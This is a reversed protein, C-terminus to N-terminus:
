VLTLLSSGFEADREAHEAVQAWVADDLLTLWMGAGDRAGWPAPLEVTRWGRGALFDRATDLWDQETGSSPVAPAQLYVATALRHAGAALTLGALRPRSPDDAGALSSGALAARIKAPSSVPLPRGSARLAGTRATMSARAAAEPDTMAGLVMVTSTDSLYGVLARLADDDDPSATALTTRTEGALTLRWGHEPMPDSRRVVPDPPSWVLLPTDPDVRDPAVTTLAGDVLALHLGTGAGIAATPAILRGRTYRAHATRDTLAFAATLARLTTTFAPAPRPGHLFVILPRDLVDPEADALQPRPQDPGTV